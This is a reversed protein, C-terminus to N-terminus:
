QMREKKVAAAAALTKIREDFEADETKAEDVAKCLKEWEPMQEETNIGVLPTPMYVVTPTLNEVTSETKKPREFPAARTAAEMRTQFDFEQNKYVAQLFEVGDGKFADPGLDAHLKKIAEARLKKKAITLKNKSGSPRGGQGKKFAAM